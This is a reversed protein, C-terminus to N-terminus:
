MFFNKICNIFTLILEQHLDEDFLGEVVSERMILPKYMALLKAVARQDGVQARQLLLKFTM